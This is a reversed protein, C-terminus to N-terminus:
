PQNEPMEVASPVQMPFVVTFTSGVGLSSELHIEGNMLTVLRKVISLGLGVGGQRRAISNDAQWFAEFIATQAERAIGLGTDQVQMAWHQEDPCLFRVNIQGADTYKIANTVLNSLVQGLRRADGLLAVPLGPTIAKVLTLNKKAAMDLLPDTINYLLERPSFADNQITLTGAEIKAHDLLDEVLQALKQANILLRTVIDSQKDNLAGFLNQQLMEIMGMMASLPTRLEHSVMAVFASKMRSIEVEPTVDHFVVVVGCGQGNELQIPAHSLSYFAQGWQIQIPAQGGPTTFIPEIAALQAPPLAHGLLEPLTKGTLAEDAQGLMRSVTPNAQVLRGAPDFVMVSDAISHLIARNRRSENQQRQLAQHLEHTREAVRQDLEQNAQRLEKILQELTHASLWAFLATLLYGMGILFNPWYGLTVAGLVSQAIFIVAMVVFSASPRILMSSLIIPLVFFSSSRGGILEAPEDSLFLVLTFLLLLLAGAWQVAVTRSLGYILMVGALCALCLLLLPPQVDYEDAFGSLMVLSLLLIVVLLAAGFGILIINLLRSRRVNDPHDRQFYIVKQWISV